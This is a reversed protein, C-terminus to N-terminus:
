IGLEDVEKILDHAQVWPLPDVRLLDQLMIEHRRLHHKFGALELLLLLKKGLLLHLPLSFCIRNRHDIVIVVTIRDFFLVLLVILNCLDFECAVLDLVVRSPSAPHLLARKSTSCTTEHLAAKFKALRVSVVVISSVVLLM